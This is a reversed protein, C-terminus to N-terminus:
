PFLYHGTPLPCHFGSAAKCFNAQKVGRLPLLKELGPCCGPFSLNLFSIIRRGLPGITEGEDRHFRNARQAAAPNFKGM